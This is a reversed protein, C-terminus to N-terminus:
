RQTASGEDSADDAAHWNECAVSHYAPGLQLDELDAALPELAVRRWSLQSGGRHSLIGEGGVDRKWWLWPEGQQWVTWGSPEEEEGSMTWRRGRGDRYEGPQDELSQLDGPLRGLLIAPLDGLPLSELAIEPIQIGDSSRCALHRRDDILLTGEPTADIRWLSRGFRDKTAVRYRDRAELQLVLRAAGSGRSGQYRVRFLQQTGLDAELLGTSAAGLGGRDIVPAHACACVAFLICAGALRGAFGVGTSAPMTM